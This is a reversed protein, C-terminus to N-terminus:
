GTTDILDVHIGLTDIFPLFISMDVRKHRHFRGTGRIHRNRTLIEVRESYLDIEDVPEHSTDFNEPIKYEDGGALAIAIRLMGFAGVFM